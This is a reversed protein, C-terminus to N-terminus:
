VAIKSTNIEPQILVFDICDIYGRTLVWYNIEQRPEGDSLVLNQHDYLLVAFGAERYKEAYKDATMGNITTTYGHAMIVVPYKKSRGDPVYLRGRLTTNQSIFEIERYMEKPSTYSETTEKEKQNISCALLNLVSLTMLFKFLYKKAKM